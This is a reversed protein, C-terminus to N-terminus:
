KIKELLKILDKYHSFEADARYRGKAPLIGSHIKQLTTARLNKKAGEIDKIPDDGIFWINDTKKFQMKKLALLFSRPNPKDVGVEESTVIFDFYHDLDFYVMKRFQIQATLDTIIALPIKLLRLEELFDVLNDFLQARSLFVSWYIQELNLSLPIQSGLGFQELTQQIYLLRNHSSATKKLQKKIVIRAKEFNTDVDQIKVNLIDSISSKLVKLAENHAPDYAYFTNDIDFFICDPLSKFLMGNSIKIM